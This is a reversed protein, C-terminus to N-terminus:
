AEASKQLLQCPIKAFGGIPRFEAEDLDAIAFGM